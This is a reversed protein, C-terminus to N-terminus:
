IAVEATAENAILDTFCWNCRDKVTVYYMGFHTTCFDLQFRYRARAKAKTAIYFTSAGQMSYPDM